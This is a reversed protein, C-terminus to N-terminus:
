QQYTGIFYISVGGNSWIYYTGKDDVDFVYRQLTTGVKYTKVVNGEADYLGIESGEQSSAVVTITKDRIVDLKISYEERTGAGELLISRAFSQCGCSQSDAVAMYGKNLIFNGVEKQEQAPTTTIDVAGANLTKRTPVIEITRTATKTVGNYTFSATVDSTKVESSDKFIDSINTTFGETITEKVGEKYTVEVEWNSIDINSYQLFSATGKTIKISDMNLVVSTFFCTEVECSRTIGEITYDEKYSVDIEYDGRKSSDFTDKNVTYKDKDLVKTTGDEYYATVVLDSLDLEEQYKYLTKSTKATIGVVNNVQDLVTKVVVHISRTKTVGDETYVIRVFQDGKQSANYTSEDYTYNKIERTTGDSYKATVVLGTFDLAQGEYYVTKMKNDDVILSSLKVGEPETITSSVSSNTTSQDNKEEGCSAIGLMALGILPIAFLKRKKM